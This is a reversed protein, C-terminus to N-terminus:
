LEGAIELIEKLVKDSFRFNTKQINLLIPKLASIIGREKAKLFIGLTGTFQINLKAALRRAKLDDLILLSNEKEIALSIASAECKDVEKELLQQQHIDKVREIIIWEPLTKNLEIFVEPTTTVKGFLEYLVHLYNLKHLLIFCSTDAIIANYQKPM